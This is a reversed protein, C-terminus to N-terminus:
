IYKKFMEYVKKVGAVLRDVDDKTNYVSTKEYLLSTNYERVTKETFFRYLSKEDM